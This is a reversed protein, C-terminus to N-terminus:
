SKGLAFGAWRCTISFLEMVRLLKEEKEKASEKAAEVM